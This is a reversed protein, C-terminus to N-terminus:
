IHPLATIAVACACQQLACWLVAGMSLIVFIVIFYVFICIGQGRCGELSEKDGDRHCFVCLFYRSEDAAATPLPKRRIEGSRAAVM